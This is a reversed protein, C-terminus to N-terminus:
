IRGTVRSVTLTTLTPPAGLLEMGPKTGRGCWCQSAPTFWKVCYFAIALALLMNTRVAVPLVSCRQGAAERQGAALRM